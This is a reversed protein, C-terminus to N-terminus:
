SSLQELATISLAWPQRPLRVTRREAGGTAKGGELPLVAFGFLVCLLHSSSMIVRCLEAQSMDECGTIHDLWCLIAISQVFIEIFSRNKILPFTTSFILFLWFVLETTFVRCLSWLFFHGATQRKASLCRKKYVKDLM